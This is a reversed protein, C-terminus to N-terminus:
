SKKGATGKSLGGETYGSLTSAAGSYSMSDVQPSPREFLYEKGPEPDKNFSEVAKTAVETHHKLEEDSLYKYKHAAHLDLLYTGLSQYLTDLKKAGAKPFKDSLKVKGYEAPHMSRQRETEVEQKYGKEKLEKNSLDTLGTKDVDENEPNLRTRM